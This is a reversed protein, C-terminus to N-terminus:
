DLFCVHDNRPGTGVITVPLGCIDKIRDIFDFIKKSLRNPDNVGFCSWDIYNAFNLVIDTAGNVAAAEVLQQESFTFVRRLRKTVTTLEGKTVEPPAGAATAVETWSIEKHDPYCDGSYGVTKGDEVVNGVRIPYPRIVLYVKGVHKPPIGMDAANQLATTSRSTCFPYHSGHNICLSFGQSGEHLITLGSEMMMMLLRPMSLAKLTDVDIYNSAIRAFNSIDTMEPVLDRALKLDAKRMIKDSLFAGCGQMTSAIHKTGGSSQAELEQHVQTVVGARPHIYINGNVGCLEIEELLRKVHFAASPGIVVFPAYPQQGATPAPEGFARWKNLVAPTPLVKGVFPPKEPLTSNDIATHGANPMNTTSVIDPTHKDALATSILGKGCSGWQGDVVINFKGRQM